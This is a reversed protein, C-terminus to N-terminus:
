QIGMRLCMRNQEAANARGFVVLDHVYVVQKKNHHQHLRMVRHVHVCAHSHVTENKGKSGTICTGRAGEAGLHLGM